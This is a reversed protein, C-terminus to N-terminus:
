FREEGSMPRLPDAGERREKEIMRITRIILWGVFFIVGAVRQFNDRNPAWFAVLWLLCLAWQSFWGPVAIPANRIQEAKIVLWASLRADFSPKPNTSM